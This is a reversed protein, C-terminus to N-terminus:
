VEYECVQNLVNIVENRITELGKNDTNQVHFVMQECIKGVQITRGQGTAPRSFGAAATERGVNALAGADTVGNGGSPSASLAIPIAAVAAIRRVNQMIDALYNTKEAQYEKEKRSEGSAPAASGAAGPVKGAAPSLSKGGPLLSVSVPALKQTAALYEATQSYNSPTDGLKLVKSKKGKGTKKLSNLLSNFDVNGAAQDGTVAAAVPNNNGGAKQQSAAWSDAGAQNGKKWAGAFDTKQAATYIASFPNAGAVGAAIEKAGAKAETAAEKFDGHLLSVLASGVRGIGSLINKFPTVISDFLSVGFAKIVEWTGLVVKRFGEFHNWCYVVAAVVAGIALVVWGLPSALFAANLAWQAVTLGKTAVAQIGDWVAKTKAIIVAAKTRAYGIALAVSLAGVAATVGWLLPNGEKLQTNWWSFAANTKSLIAYLGSAVVALVEIGANILPLILEGLATGANKFTNWVEVVRQVANASFGLAKDTEGASNTVDTMSNKLKTIDSTMIAFANKAEKDVLGLKELLTSKQEDNLSGLVKQLDGFIDVVGRIKGTDDFVKVGAKEMKERVDARGLVSFANEMLVAAHEASQGKGTMYAFTGAVEKYSVGLNSAGAILNPMYRAFDAFEGAGVRKAAFFTDLVEAASANEKGVISLTQALAGSVTDLDTFGAKSGKLSADLISLSLDVDNLQSNIKEFGVPAVQIDTKNDVAIKKLKAKLDAYAAGDLQATINVKAMNEDFGMASKGAFALAASAAVVPNTIFDAGPISHFADAAMTKVKGANRSIWGDLKEFGVGLGTIKKNYDDVARGASGFLRPANGVTRELGALSNIAKGSASTVALLPQSIRDTLRFIYEIVNAM